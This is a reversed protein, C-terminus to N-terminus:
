GIINFTLEEPKKCNIRCFGLVTIPFIDHRTVQEGNLWFEKNGNAYECAPGDTRHLEGNKYWSKIGNLNELCIIESM